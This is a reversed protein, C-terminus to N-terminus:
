LVETCHTPEPVYGDGDSSLEGAEVPELADCVAEACDGCVYTFCITGDANIIYVFTTAPADERVGDVGSDAHYSNECLQGEPPDPVIDSLWDWINEQFDESYEDVEDLLEGNKGRVQFKKM